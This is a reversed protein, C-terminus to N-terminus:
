QQQGKKIMELEMKLEKIAEILVGVLNAYAVSKYGNEGEFVAEPIVKEVEQAIVGVSNVSDKTFYVGRMNCVKHLASSITRVDTKLRVDSSAAVTGEVVLNKTTTFTAALGKNTLVYVPVNTYSGVILSNPTTAATLLTGDPGTGNKTDNSVGIVADVDSTGDISFRVYSGGPEDALNSVDGNIKIGAFGQSRILMERRANPGDNTVGIVPASEFTKLGAIYQDGVRYVGNTVTNANGTISGNIDDTFTVTGEFTKDATIKQSTNLTMVVSTDVAIATNGLGGGPNTISIGNGQQFQRTALVNNGVRVIYGSTNLNHLALAQGTLKLERDQTLNGGGTIGDSTSITRGGLVVGNVTATQNSLVINNAYLTGNTGIRLAFNSGEVGIVYEANTGTGASGRIGTLWAINNNRYRFRPGLSNDITVSTQVASSFEVQGRIDIPSTNGVKTDIVNTRLLSSSTINNATFSGVLTANGVTADGLTSATVVTTGLEGILSNTRQLWVQFTDTENVQPIIRSM